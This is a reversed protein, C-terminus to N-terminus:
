TECIEAATEGFGAKSPGSVLLNDQSDSILEPAEDRADAQGGCGGARSLIAECQSRAKGPAQSECSRSRFGLSVAASARDLSSFSM